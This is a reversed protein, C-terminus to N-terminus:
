CGTAGSNCEVYVSQASSLVFRSPLSPLIRQPLQISVKCSSAIAPARVQMALDEALTKFVEGKAVFDTECNVEILVGLASNSHVYTEVLGETATRGAKKGASALGKKKLWTQLRACEAQQWRLSHIRHAHSSLRCTFHLFMDAVSRRHLAHTYAANDCLM